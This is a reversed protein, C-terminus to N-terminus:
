EGDPRKFGDDDRVRDPEVVHAREVINRIQVARHAADVRAKLDRLQEETKATDIMKKANLYDFVKSALNFLVTILSLISAVM